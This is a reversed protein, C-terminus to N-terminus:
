LRQPRHGLTAAALRFMQVEMEEFLSSQRKVRARVTRTWTVQTGNASEKVRVVDTSGDPATVKLSWRSLHVDLEQEGHSTEVCLTTRGAITADNSATRWGLWLPWSSTDALTAFVDQPAAKLEHARTATIFRMSRVDRLPTRNALLM